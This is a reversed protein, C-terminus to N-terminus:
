LLLGKLYEESKSLHSGFYSFIEGDVFTIKVNPLHMLLEQQHLKNFPFPISSLLIEDVNAEKIDNILVTPYRGKRDLFVNEYGLINLVSNIFTNDGAVMFPNRWILYAVKKRHEGRNLRINEVLLTTKDVIQEAKKETNLLKGLKLVFDNNSEISEVNSIFFPIEKAIKEVQPKINEEKSGIILDPKLAIIKDYNLRKTGGIITKTKKWNKPFNCYNTVGVVENDFGLDYLLETISPVTSVILKPPYNVSIINGLQDIIQKKM